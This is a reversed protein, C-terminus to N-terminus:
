RFVINIALNDLVNEVLPNYPITTETAGLCTFTYTGLPYDGNLRLPSDQTFHSAFHVLGDRLEYNGNGDSYLGFMPLQVFRPGGQSPPYPIIDGHIIRWMFWQWNPYAASSTVGKAAWYDWFANNNDSPVTLWFMYVGESLTPKVFKINLYYWFNPDTNGNLKLKFDSVQNGAVPLWKDPNDSTSYLMNVQKLTRPTANVFGLSTIAIICAFVISIRV